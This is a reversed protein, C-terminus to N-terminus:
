EYSVRPDIVGYIIDVIINILVFVVAFVLTAGMVVPLDNKGLADVVEYGIGKWNFIIEVFISGAMLSAFWGSISTVVPNLANQFVHKSIVVFKTLGKAYATRVYDARIEELMSARMLPIIISFPRIGLTIAPLILNQLQLHEVGFDDMVYLSGEHSLGTYARLAYGFLWSLVLGTFFMPLSMGIVSISALAKDLWSNEYVASLAGFCVGFITAILISCTTLIATAPFKDVIIDFVKRKTFYSRRLYPFKLLIVKSGDLRFLKKHAGYKDADFYIVHESNETEHVSVPSLDNSYRLYQVWTPKDLGFERNIEDIAAQEAHQGLMMRAPDGPLINFLYFVVTNVGILVFFGYFLRKVVFKFM